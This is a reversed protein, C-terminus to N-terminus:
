DCAQWCRDSSRAGPWYPGLYIAEREQARISKRHSDACIGRQIERCRPRLHPSPLTMTLFATSENSDVTNPAVDATLRHAIIPSPWRAASASPSLLEASVVRASRSPLDPRQRTRPQAAERPEVRTCWPPPGNSVSSTADLRAPRTPLTTRWRTGDEARALTDFRGGTITM